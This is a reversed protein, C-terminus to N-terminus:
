INLLFYYCTGMLTIFIYNNLNVEGITMNDNDDHKNM